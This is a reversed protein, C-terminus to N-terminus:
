EMPITEAGRQSKLCGRLRDCPLLNEVAFRAAERAYHMKQGQM